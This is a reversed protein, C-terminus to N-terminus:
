ARCIRMMMSLGREQAGKHTHVWGLTSGASHTGLQTHGARMWVRMRAQGDADVEHDLVLALYAHMRMAPRTRSRGAHSHPLALALGVAALHHRGGQLRAQEAGDPTCVQYRCQTVGLAEAHTPPCQFFHHKGGQELWAMCRPAARQGGRKEVQM